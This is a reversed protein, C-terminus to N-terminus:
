DFDSGRGLEDLLSSRAHRMKPTEALRHQRMRARKRLLKAVGEMAQEDYLQTGWVVNCDIGMMDLANSRADDSVKDILGSHWRRGHYEVDTRAREFYLDADLHTRGCHDQAARSLAIQHNLLPTGCDWGGESRPLSLLIALKSEMPSRSGTLAREAAWRARRAGKVGSCTGALWSLRGPTTLPDVEFRCDTGDPHIAYTGCLEYALELLGIKSLQGALQVFLLEPGSLYVGMDLCSVLGDSVPGTWVHCRITASPRRSRDRGVILDLQETEGILTRALQAVDRVNPPLELPRLSEDAALTEPDLSPLLQDPYLAELLSHATGNWRGRRYAKLASNHSVVLSTGHKPKPIGSGFIMTNREAAGKFPYARM